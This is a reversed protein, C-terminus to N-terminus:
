VRIFVHVWVFLEPTWGEMPHLERWIKVFEVNSTCGEQRFLNNAVFSLQMRLVDILRFAKGDITFVDGRNGYRKRRSTMMKNGNLIQRKM